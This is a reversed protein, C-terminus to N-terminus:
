KKNTIKNITDKTKDVVTKGTDVINRGVKKIQGAADSAFEEIKDKTKSLVNKGKVQLNNKAESSEVRLQNGVNYDPAFEENLLESGTNTIENNINPADQAFEELPINSDNLINQGSGRISNGMKPNNQSFNEIAESNRNKIETNDYYTRNKNKNDMQMGGKNLLKQM